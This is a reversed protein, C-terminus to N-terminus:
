RQSNAKTREHAKILPHVVGRLRALALERLMDRNLVAYGKLFFLTRGERLAKFLAPDTAALKPDPGTWAIEAAGHLAVVDMDHLAKAISLPDKKLDVLLRTGAVHVERTLM